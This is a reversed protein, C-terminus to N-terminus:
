KNIGDKEYAVASRQESSNDSLEARREAPEQGSCMSYMVSNEASLYEPMHYSATLSEVLGYVRLVSQTVLSNEAKWWSM